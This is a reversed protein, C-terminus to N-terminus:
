HKVLQQPSKYLDTCHRLSVGHVVSRMRKIFGRLCVRVYIDQHTDLLGCLWSLLLHPVHQFLSYVRESICYIMVHPKRWVCVFVLAEKISLELDTVCM